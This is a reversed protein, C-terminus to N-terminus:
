DGKCIGSLGRSGGTPAEKTNLGALCQATGKENTKAQHSEIWTPKGNIIVQYRGYDSDNELIEMPLKLEQVEITSFPKISISTDYLDIKNKTFDIIQTAQCVGINFVFISIYFSKLNM